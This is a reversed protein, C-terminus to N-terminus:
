LKLKALIDQHIEDIEKEGDVEIYRCDPNKKFVELVPFVDTDFWDLRKTIGDINDDERKRSLMRGLACERSINVNIVTFNNRNFFKLAEILMQQEDLQRPTGDLFIHNEQEVNRILDSGWAWVALFSPLLEGRNSIEKALLSAHSGESFFNRFTGGTELHFVKGLNNKEFYKKLLDVQTGKGGGSRSIFIYTQPELPM